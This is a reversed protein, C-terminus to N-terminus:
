RARNVIGKDGRLLLLLLFYNNVGYTPARTACFWLIAKNKCPVSVKETIEQM